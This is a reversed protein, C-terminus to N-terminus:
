KNRNRISESADVCKPCGCIYRQAENMLSGCHWCSSLGTGHFTNLDATTGDAFTLVGHSVSVTGEVRALKGLFGQMGPPNLSQANM